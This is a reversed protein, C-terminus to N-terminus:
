ALNSAFKFDRLARWLLQDHVNSHTGSASVFRFHKDDVTPLWGSFLLKLAVTSDKSIEKGYHLCMVIHILQVFALICPREGGFVGLAVVKAVCREVELRKNHLISTYQNRVSGTLRSHQTTCARIFLSQDGHWRMTPQVFVIDNEYSMPDSIM